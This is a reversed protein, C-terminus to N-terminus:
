KFQELIDILHTTVWNSAFHLSSLPLIFVLKGMATRVVARQCVKPLPPAHSCQHPVAYTACNWVSWTRRNPVIVVLRSAECLSWCVQLAKCVYGSLITALNGLMVDSSCPLSAVSKRNIFSSISIQKREKDRVYLRQFLSCRKRNAIYQCSLCLVTCQQLCRSWLSLVQLKARPPPKFESMQLDREWLLVQHPPGDHCPTTGVSLCRETCYCTRSRSFAVSLFFFSFALSVPIPFCLILILNVCIILVM